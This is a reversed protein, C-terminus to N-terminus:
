VCLFLGVSLFVVTLCMINLVLSIQLNRNKCLM